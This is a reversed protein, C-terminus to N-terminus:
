PSEKKYWRKKNNKTSKLTVISIGHRHNQAQTLSCQQPSQGSLPPTLEVSWKLKSLSCSLKQNLKAQKEKVDRYVIPVRLSSKCSCESREYEHTQTYKCGLNQQQITCPKM